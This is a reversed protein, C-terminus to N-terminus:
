NGWEVWKHWDYVAKEVKYKGTCTGDAARIWHWFVVIGQSDWLTSVPYNFTSSGYAAESTENGLINQVTEFPMGKYVIHVLVSGKAM